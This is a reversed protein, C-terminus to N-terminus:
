TDVGEPKRRASGGSHSSPNTSTSLAPAPSPEAWAATASGLNEELWRREAALAESRHDFPGQVPGAAPTIDAWWSGTEDPEVHSARTIRLAGIAALNLDEAYVCRVVGRTDVVLTMM